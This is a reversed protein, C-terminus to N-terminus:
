RDVIDLDAPLFTAKVERGFVSVVIQIYNAGASIVRGSFDKFPGSNVKILDGQVFTKTKTYNLTEVKKLSEVSALDKATCPGVYNTVFPNSNLKHWVLPTHDYRLFIYAAYLPVRKKKKENIQKTVTPYLVEKVEPVSEAIYKAVTDFKGPRVVWVHWKQAYLEDKATQDSM